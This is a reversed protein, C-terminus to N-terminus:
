MSKSTHTRSFNAYRFDSQAIRVLAEHGCAHSHFVHNPYTFVHVLCTEPTNLAPTARREIGTDTKQIFIRPLTQPCEAFQHGVALQLHQQTALVEQSVAVIFIHHHVFKHLLRLFVAHVNETYEVSEIVGAVKFMGHGSYLLHIPMRLSGNTVGHGRQVCHFSVNFLSTAQKVHTCIRNGQFIHSGQKLRLRRIVDDTADFVGVTIVSLDVHVAVGGRTDGQHRQHLGNLSTSVHHIAGNGRHRQTRAVVGGLRQHFHQFAGIVGSVQVHIAQNSDTVM